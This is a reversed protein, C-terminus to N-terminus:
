DRDAVAAVTPVRRTRSSATFCLSAAVGILLVVTPLLLSQGLASAYGHLAADPSAAATGDPFRQAILAPLYAAISASGIVAGLQRFTSFAGSGAGALELPLRRIGVATLPAAVFASGIGLLASPAVLLWVNLEPRLLMALWTLAASTALFGGGCLWRPDVRGILRGILPALTLMAFAMPLLLLSARLATLSLVDQAFLMFPIALGTIAFSMAALSVSALAFDRQRFLRMPLLPDHETRLEVIIFVALAIVGVAITWRGGAQQLGFIVGFLGISSFLLGLLDFSRSTRPLSPVFALALVFGITGIPVNVWFIWPWSWASILAGGALPGVVAAAGGILSWVALASGRREAPFIRVVVALTQPTMLAAGIGQAVRAAILAALVTSFGCALSALTFVALGLLYVSRQGFRDGLRGALLLPLVYALLYASTVWVAGSTDTHLDRLLVPTAVSVITSDVLIMFLGLILTWLAAWPRTRTTM